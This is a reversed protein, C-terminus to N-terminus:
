FEGRLMDESSLAQEEVQIVEPSGPMHREPLVALGRRTPQCQTPVQTAM